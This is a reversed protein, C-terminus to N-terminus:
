NLFCYKNLFLIQTSIYNFYSLIFYYNIFLLSKFTFISDNFIDIYGILIYVFKKNSYIFKVDKSQHFFFIIAFNIKLMIKKKAQM